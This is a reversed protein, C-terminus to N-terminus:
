TIAICIAVVGISPSSSPTTDDICSSSTVHVGVDNGQEDEDAEESSELLQAWPRMRRCRKKDSEIGRLVLYWNTVM